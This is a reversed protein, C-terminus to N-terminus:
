NFLKYYSGLNMQGIGIDQIVYCMDQKNFQKHRHELIGWKMIHAAKEEDLQNLTVWVNIHALKGIWKSMHEETQMEAALGNRNIQTATVLLINYESAIQALEMWIEDEKEFGALKSSNPKIIDAYDIILVDPFFNLMNHWVDLEHKIDKLSASFRPFSRMKAFHGYHAKLKSVDSIVTSPDWEKKYLLEYWTTPEFDISGMCHTCVKHRMAPPSTYIPRKGNVLLCGSGVRTPYICKGNQNKLCDFVPVRYLGQTDALSLFRRALREKMDIQTMELSIFGVRLRNLLCNFFFEQLAFSKGRKFGGSIAVLWGRYLEGMFEGLAGPFKFLGADKYQFIEEPNDFPDFAKILKKTTKKYNLVENEADDILDKDLLAKINGQVIELERKKFFKIAKDKLFESNHQIGKNREVMSRVLEVFYEHQDSKIEMEFLSDKPSDKYNSYFLKCWNVIKKNIDNKFYIPDAVDVLDALVDKCFVLSEIVRREDSLNVRSIEM